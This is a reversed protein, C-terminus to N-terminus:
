YLSTSFLFFYCCCRLTCFFWRRDLFFTRASRENKDIEIRWDTINFMVLCWIQSTTSWNCLLELDVDNGAAVYPTHVHPNRTNVYYWIEYHIESPLGNVDNVQNSKTAPRKKKRKKWVKGIQVHSQSVNQICVNQEDILDLSHQHM